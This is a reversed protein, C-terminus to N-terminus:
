VHAVVVNFVSGDDNDAVNVDNNINRVSNFVYCIGMIASVCVCVRKEFKDCMIHLERFVNNVLKRDEGGAIRDQEQQLGNLCTRRRGPIIQSKIGEPRKCPYAKLLQTFNSGPGFVIAVKISLQAAFIPMQYLQAAAAAAAALLSIALKLSNVVTKFTKANKNITQQEKQRKPLGLRVMPNISVGIIYSDATTSLKTILWSDMGTGGGSDSDIVRTGVYQLM